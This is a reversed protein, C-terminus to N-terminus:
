SSGLPFLFSATATLFTSLEPVSGLVVQSTSFPSIVTPSFPTIVRGLSLTFPPVSTVAVTVSLPPIASSSLSGSIDSGPVKVTSSVFASLTSARPPRSGTSILFHTPSLTSHFSPTLAFSELFSALTLSSNFSALVDIESSSELPVVFSPSKM